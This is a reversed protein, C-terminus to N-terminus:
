LSREDNKEAKADMRSVHNESMTLLRNTMDSREQNLKVTEESITRSISMHDSQNFHGALDTRLSEIAKELLM